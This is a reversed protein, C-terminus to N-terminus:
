AGGSDTTVNEGLSNGADLNRMIFRFHQLPEVGRMVFNAVCDADAIPREKGGFLNVPVFDCNNLYPRRAAADPRRLAGVRGACFEGAAVADDGILPADREANVDGIAAGNVNDIWFRRSDTQRMGTAFASLEPNDRIRDPLHNIAEAGIGRVHDHLEARTNARRVVFDIECRFDDPLTPRETHFLNVVGADAGGTIESTVVGIASFFPFGAAHERQNPHIWRNRILHSFREGKIVFNRRITTLGIFSSTM